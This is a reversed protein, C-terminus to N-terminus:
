SAITVRSCSIPPDGGHRHPAACRLANPHVGLSRGVEGSSMRTGGLLALLRAALDEATRRAGPDDPLRGITFVALDRAAVIYAYRLGWIQILSDDGWTTSDTQAVRAHISLLGARPM